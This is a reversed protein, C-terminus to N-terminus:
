GAARGLARVELEDYPLYGSAVSDIVGDEDLFFTIPIFRVGSFPEPVSRPSAVLAYPTDQADRFAEVAEAPDHKSVGIVTVGSHTEHLRALHPIERRCPACWTAWFNIVARQGRLVAPDLDEGDITTWEFAAPARGVWAQMEAEYERQEALMQQIYYGVFLGMGVAIILGVGSMAMGFISLVGSAGRRLAIWGVFLGAVAPVAGIVLLSSLLALIGLVLTAIAWGRGTSSSDPSSDSSSSSVNM